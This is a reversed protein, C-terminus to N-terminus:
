SKKQLVTPPTGRFGEFPIELKTGGEHFTLELTYPVGYIRFIPMDCVLVNSSKAFLECKANGYCFMLKGAEETIEVTGYCPDVYRGIFQKNPVAQPLSYLFDQSAKLKAKAANDKHSLPTIYDTPPINLLTDLLTHRICNVAYLGDSSSNTLTIIAIDLERVMYLDAIFGQTLGSHGVTTHGHYPGIFWGLGYGEVIDGQGKVEIAITYLEELTKPQVLTKHGKAWKLMDSLTSYIGGAPNIASLNSYPVKEAFDQMYAHGSSCTLRSEADRVASDLNKPRMTYSDTMELPTFIRKLVAEEWTIGLKQEVCLGAITYMYNNYTFRSGAAYSPESRALIDIVDDKSIDKLVWIPDCREFGTRHALIDRITLSSSVCSFQPLHKAVPDDWALRGEDVLQALLLATFAKTCSGVSFITKETVPSDCGAESTGYGKELIVEGRDIVGVAAGPVNFTTITKKIYEDIGALTDKAALPCFSTMFVLLYFAIRTM